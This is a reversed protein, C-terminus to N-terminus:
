AALSFTRSLEYDNHWNASGVISSPNLTNYAGAAPSTFAAGNIYNTASGDGYPDDLVQVPRQGPMGSLANDVGTTVTFPSGSQYRIIPSLQWGSFLARTTTGTFDPARWVLSVNIIHRRDSACYTYDLNPDAPNMITPGTIETTAPDSMCKSLTYNALTSLTSTLPRQ